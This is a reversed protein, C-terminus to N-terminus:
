HEAGLEEATKAGHARLFDVIEKPYKHFIVPDLITEGQKQGYPHSVANVDAGKEILLNMIKIIEQTNKFGLACMLVTRGYYDQANANAGKSTLFEAIQFNHVSCMLPTYNNKVNRINVDAGYQVLSKILEFNRSNCATILPPETGLNPDAGHKLLMEAIKVSNAQQQATNNVQQLAAHWLPTYGQHDKVNTKAGKELLLKVLEPNNDL